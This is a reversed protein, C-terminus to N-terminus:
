VQALFYYVLCFFFLGYLAIRIPLGSRHPKLLTEYSLALILILLFAFTFRFALYHRVEPSLYLTM